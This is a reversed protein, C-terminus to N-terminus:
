VRINVKYESIEAMLVEDAGGAMEIKKTRELKRRMIAIEEQFIKM